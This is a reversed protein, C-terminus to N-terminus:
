EKAFYLNCHCKGDKRIEDKHYVCPCIIDKDKEHDGSRIRCPCYQEGYKEENRVLGKLVTELQKTNSNLFFGNEDAYKQVVERMKDTNIDNM